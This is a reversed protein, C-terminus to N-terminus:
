VGVLRCACLTSCVPYPGQMICDEEKIKKGCEECTVTGDFETYIGCGKSPFQKASPDHITGDPKVTWWHQEETNWIPCFYYGRVLRLSPDKQIAEACLEKCKGRYKSYDSKGM